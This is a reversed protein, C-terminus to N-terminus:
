DCGAARDFDDRLHKYISRFIPYIQGYRAHRNSDPTYRTRIRVMEGVAQRADPYLGAGMGALVADGFPAGVSKEPLLVPVGLVDAKIQNWLTSRSGGGVTRIEELTAGAQEAVETNHKLAFAAGELIARILAARPTALSLGFFVGRANTHWLPSREGMMYPLFIVGESGADITTAQQTLLDFADIQLRDAMEIEVAGFTDRYWRLSAGSASTAGLLVHLDSLAHRMSILSAHTLSEANPFMVVTSTGTMEAVIGPAVAGAEIAAAIGDVTGVMVPTGPKLGTSAAAKPTVEGLTHHAPYIDPFANPEVGCLEMLAPAWRDKGYDRLQLLTAHSADLSYSGTLLYNIYGNAQLFKHTKAMFAPENRRFWLLKAAVYYADPRNGTLRFVADTGMQQAIEGAEAEARRDMWILAARLPRGSADVPLMTPAQSSVAIGVVRDRGHPVGDLAQRIAQGTANWWDEARQEAWTPREHHTAYEAAGISELRGQPTFLAAKTATTGVDVGLLLDDM